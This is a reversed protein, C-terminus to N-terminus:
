IPYRTPETTYQRGSPATWRVNGNELQEANWRPDQKLRHDFRCKPNGNCLCTRGGAEYPINHEFDCSSAPRRCGPGTCTAHRVQALHWLMVGPDHGRAQHRHDCDGAPIPGIEILPDRQGPIGTSFRWTGYGGPPGPRGAPIFSFRPARPPDPGGPEDSKDTKPRSAIPAPRACGHGIAHGQSDTVTVCWTSRPNRAAAAALDRALDPDIPGIGDM